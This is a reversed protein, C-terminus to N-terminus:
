YKRLVKEPVNETLLVVMEQVMEQLRKTEAKLRQIERDKNPCKECPRSTTAFTKTTATTIVSCDDEGGGVVSVGNYTSYISRNDDDDDDGDKCDCPHIGPAASV